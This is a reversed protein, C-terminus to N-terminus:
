RYSDDMPTFFTSITNTDNTKLNTSLKHFLSLLTFQFAGGLFIEILCLPLSLNLHTFCHLAM